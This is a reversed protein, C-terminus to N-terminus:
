HNKSADAHSEGRPRRRSRAEIYGVDPLRRGRRIREVKVIVILEQIQPKRTGTCLVDAHAADKALPQSVAPVRQPCQVTCCRWVRHARWSIATSRCAINVGQAPPDADL